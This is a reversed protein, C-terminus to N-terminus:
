TGEEKGLSYRGRAWGVIFGNWWEEMHDPIECKLIKDEAGATLHIDRNTMALRTLNIFHQAGGQRFPIHDLIMCYVGKYITTTYTMVM